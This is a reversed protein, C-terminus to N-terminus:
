RARASALGVVIVWDEAPASPPAGLSVVGGGRVEAVSGRQLAGGARPDFWRVTYRGAHAALDLSATGGTPLYVVYRRGPDALCWRSDDHAANGVLEDANRMTWFPGAHRRFFELALGAWRWSRHRSRWDEANLDNQPLTYGFYYEVGAGGAMLTGWLTYRRVDHATYPRSGESPRATGDFGAYGSDPPLGTFHPNQEDHAVVWQRGARASEDLWQLVMRHSANWGTQLSLGTLMSRDGLLPRYIREQRGPWTHLVIHHDYPDVDHIYAAMARQQASTQSNEEGLNWNLALEYGFRAILERLYLRREVGLEGGDLATPVVRASDGLVGDDNETEQLKFHLYLGLRQAHDLVIQWQDLKSVDFHLPDDREVYPWVDDGDGGANYTLFSVANAGTGALYNLAGILGKGKGGQWTPDGARWDAVHPTWRKLTSAPTAEGERVPADRKARTGDIDAYSLLNEPSDAGAKLFYEGSGAFQLYRRGVYQLRGRARFDAGRKDTPLVQFTGRRGHIGAVPAGVVSDDIAARPGRVFSVEYTWSGPKDPSLHARWRNGESASSEAARGDAAFYGPVRHRPAGSAHTFTVVMRYDLFPNPLTDTERASPGDLTLTVKHWQRMTGSVASPPQAAAVGAFALLASVAVLPTADRSM